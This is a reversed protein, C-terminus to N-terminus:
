APVRYVTVLEDAYVVDPLPPVAPREGWVLYSEVGAARLEAALAPGAEARPRGHYRCGALFCVHASRQWLADSAVDEGLAGTGALRAALAATPAGVRWNEALPARLPLAVAALLLALAGATLLQTHRHGALAARGGDLAPGALTLLVLVPAFLYREEYFLPLLGAVWAGATVVAAAAALRARRARVAVLAGLAGVLLLAGARDRLGAAYRELGSTVNAMFRDAVASRDDYGAFHVPRSTPDEWFSFAHQGPPPLLGDYQIPSGASAPAVVALNYRPSSGVAPRGAEASLVAFWPGAVLLLGTATAAAAVATRGRRHAVLLSLGCVAATVLVVVPLAYLKSLVALGGAAGALLGLVLPREASTARVTLQVFLLLWLAVLLDAFVGFWMAYLVFPVALLAVADAAPPSAGTLRAGSRVAVVVAVGTLLGLVKAALVAPVGALLFPVVLWSLLPSWYGNVAESWRGAAYHEAVALYSMGDLGLHHRYAPLTALGVLLLLAPPALRRLRAVFPPGVAVWPVPRALTTATM